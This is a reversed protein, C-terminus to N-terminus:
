AAKHKRLIFIVEIWNSVVAEIDFLLGTETVLRGFLELLGAQTWVHYHISYDMDMLEQVSKSRTNMEEGLTVWEEFHMERSWAPGELHDRVLHEFSTVPRNRDFTLRKDPVACYIVGGPKLVRLMAKVAGITDQCHELFHSSIVFDQSSDPITTLLEGNDLIDAEILSYANLEPYQRRLDAVTMRDVYRVRAPPRVPVPSHLAGIEIGEGELYLGAVYRRVDFFSASARLGPWTFPRSEDGNVGGAILSFEHSALDARLRVNQELLEGIQKTREALLQEVPTAVPGATDSAVEPAVQVMVRSLPVASLTVLGDEVLYRLADTEALGGWRAQLHRVAHIEQPTLDTGTRSAQRTLSQFHYLVSEHCYHVEHGLRGARLCLDVDEYVNHFAPDFGNLAEFLDRRVLMCAGTVAQFRRSKSVAPHGAPFRYYLHIPGQDVFAVGAHQITDNPFLLKSGVIGVQPHTALYGMLARLWGRTPLTDNNLFLLFEGDAVIAGDNCSTAFGTNIEHRVTRVTSGYRALLRSTLDQSADDVVIIETDFSEAPSALLADVCQRTLSAHNYAPIIISCRPTTM